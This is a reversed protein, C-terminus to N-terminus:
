EVLVRANEAPWHVLVEDGVGFTTDYRQGFNQVRVVLRAEPGLEVLYRIDTGIYIAEVVVGQVVVTNQEGELYQRVHLEPTVDVNRGRIEIRM